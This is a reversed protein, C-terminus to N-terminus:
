NPVVWLLTQSAQKCTATYLTSSVPCCPLSLFCPYSPGRKAENTAPQALLSRSWSVSVGSYVRTRMDHCLLRVKGPATPLGSSGAARYVHTSDVARRISCCCCCRFPPGAGKRWRGLTCTLFTPPHGHAWLMSGCLSVFRRPLALSARRNCVYQSSHFM